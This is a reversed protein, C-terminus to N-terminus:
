VKEAVEVPEPEHARRKGIRYNDLLIAVSLPILGEDCQSQFKFAVLEICADVIPQPPSEIDPYYYGACYAVLVSDPYAGFLRSELRVYDDHAKYEDPQLPKGQILLSEICRIPAHRLFLIDSANGDHLESYPRIAIFRNCYREIQRSAATILGRLRDDQGHEVRDIDLYAKVDSLGVFDNGSM